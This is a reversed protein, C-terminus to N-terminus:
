CSFVIQHFEPFAQPQPTAKSGPSSLEPGVVKGGALQTARPLAVQTETEWM